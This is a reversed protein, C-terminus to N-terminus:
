SKNVGLFVIKSGAKFKNQSNATYFNLVSVTEGDLLRFVGVETDSSFTGNHVNCYGSESQCFFCRGQKQFTLKAPRCQYYNAASVAFVAAIIDSNMNQWRGMNDDSSYGYRDNSSDTVGNVRVSCSPDAGSNAITNEFEVYAIVADWADFDIDSVDVDVQQATQTTVVEKLKVCVVNLAQAVQDTVDTGTPTQLIYAPTTYLVTNSPMVVIPRVGFTETKLDYAMSSKASVYYAQTYTTWPTRTWYTDDFDALLNYEFQTGDNASSGGLEAVSPAFAKRSITTVSTGTHSGSYVQISATVLSSNEDIAPAYTNTLWADLVSESYPDNNSDSWEVNLPAGDWNQITQKRALAVGGSYNKAVVIFDVPQGNEHLQYTYGIPADSLYTPINNVVVKLSGALMALVEDPVMTDDGGYKQATADKLLTNKNLPDGQQSIGAANLQGTDYPFTGANLMALAQEWTTGAPISSKMLRSNGTGLPVFNQM